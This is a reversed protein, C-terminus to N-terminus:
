YLFGDKGLECIIVSLNNKEYEAQNFVAMLKKIFIDTEGNLNLFLGISTEDRIDTLMDYLADLNKGYYEPFDMKKAIYDHIEEPETYQRIDLIIKKM